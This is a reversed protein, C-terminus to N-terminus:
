AAALSIFCLQSTLEGFTEFKQLTKVGAYKCNVTLMIVKYFMFARIFMRVNSIRDNIREQWCVGTVGLGGTYSGYKLGPSYPPSAM